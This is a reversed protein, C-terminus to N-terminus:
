STHNNRMIMIMMIMMMIMTYQDIKHAPNTTHEADVGEEDVDVSSSSQLLGHPITINGSGDALVAHIRSGEVALGHFQSTRLHNGPVGNHLPELLYGVHLLASRTSGDGNSTQVGAKQLQTGLRVDRLALHIQAHSIVHQIGVGGANGELIQTYALSSSQIINSQHNIFHLIVQLNNGVVQLILSIRSHHSEALTTVPSIIISVYVCSHNLNTKITITQQSYLFLNNNRLM